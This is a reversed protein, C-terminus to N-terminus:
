KKRARSVAFNKAPSLYQGKNAGSRSRPQKRPTKSSPEFYRRWRTVHPAVFAALSWFEDPTAVTQFGTGDLGANKMWEPRRAQHQDWWANLKIEAQSKTENPHYSLFVAKRFLNERDEHGMGKIRLIQALADQRPLGSALKDPHPEKIAERVEKPLGNRQREIAFAIESYLDPVPELDRALIEAQQLLAAAEDLRPVPEGRLQALRIAM